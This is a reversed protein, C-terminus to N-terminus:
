EQNDDDNDDDTVPPNITVLIYASENGEEADDLAHNLAVELPHDIPLQEYAIEAESWTLTIEKRPM